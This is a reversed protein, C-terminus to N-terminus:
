PHSPRRTAHSTFWRKQLSDTPGIDVTQTFSKDTIDGITERWILPRGHDQTELRIVLQKGDWQPGPQPPPPFMECGDPYVNICWLHQIHKNADWWILGTGFLEGAPTQSHYEEILTFGGPGPRFTTEGTGEGGQPTLFLPQYEEHVSWKGSLRAILSTLQPNVPSPSPKLSQSRSPLSIAFLLVVSLFASLSKM